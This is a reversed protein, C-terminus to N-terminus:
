DRDCVKFGGLYYANKDWADVPSDECYESYDDYAKTEFTEADAETLINYRFYVRYQDKAYAHKLVEFTEQDVGGLIVGQYYTNNKDQGFDSGLLEFTKPDSNQLASCVWFVSSDDEDCDACVAM